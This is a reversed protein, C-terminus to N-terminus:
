VRGNTQPEEYLVPGAKVLLRALLERAEATPRLEDPWHLMHWPSATCDIVVHLRSTHM